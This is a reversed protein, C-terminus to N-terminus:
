KSDALQYMAKASCPGVLAEQNNSHWLRLWDRRSTITTQSGSTPAKPGHTTASHEFVVSSATTPMPVNAVSGRKDEEKSFTSALPAFVVNDTYLQLVM